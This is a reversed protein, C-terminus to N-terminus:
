VLEEVWKSVMDRIMWQYTTWHEKAYIKLFDVDKKFLRINLLQKEKKSEELYIEIVEYVVENFFMELDEELYWQNINLFNINFVSWDWYEDEWIYEVNYPYFVGDKFISWTQKEWLIKKFEM